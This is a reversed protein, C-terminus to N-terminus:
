AGGLKTFDSALLASLEQHHLIIMDDDLYDQLDEDSLLDGDYIFLAHNAPPQTQLFSKIRARAPDYIQSFISCHSHVTRDLRSSFKKRSKFM